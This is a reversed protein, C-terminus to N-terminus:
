AAGVRRPSRGLWRQARCLRVARHLVEEVTGRGDVRHLKRQGAYYRVLPRAKARDIRLRRRITMPHDDRRVTLTGQCRDCRGPRKPPMTRVHYNAGCRSCVRRGSLRRVLVAQPAALYIAGDLPRGVRNMVADLGKAQGITRPFGDLVFGEKSRLTNLRRTMVEVVLADPVLKGHTVFRQVRRGLASHRAMEQRFIQGTSIHRLRRRQAWLAALSGKGAGPPGLLAIRM